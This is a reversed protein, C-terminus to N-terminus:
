WVFSDLRMFGVSSHVRPPCAVTLLKCTCISPASSVFREDLHLPKLAHLTIRVLFRFRHMRLMIRETNTNFPFRKCGVELLETRM